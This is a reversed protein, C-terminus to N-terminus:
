RRIYSPMGARSAKYRRNSRLKKKILAVEDSPLKRREETHSENTLKPKNITSGEKARITYHGIKNAMNQPAERDMGAMSPKYRRVGRRMGKVGYHCLYNEDAKIWAMNDGGLVNIM